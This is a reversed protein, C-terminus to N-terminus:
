LKNECELFKPFYPYVESIKIEKIERGNCVKKLFGDDLKNGSSNTLTYTKGSGSFGYGFFVVSEGNEINKNIDSFEQDFLEGPRSHFFAKRYPGYVKNGPEKCAGM